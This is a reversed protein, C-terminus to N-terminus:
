EELEEHEEPEAPEEPIQVSFFYINIRSWEHINHKTNKQYSVHAWAVVRVSLLEYELNVLLQEDRGQLILGRLRRYLEDLTCTLPELHIDYSRPSHISFRRDTHHLCYAHQDVILMFIGNRAEMSGELDIQLRSFQNNYGWVVNRGTLVRRCDLQVLHGMRQMQILFSIYSPNPVESVLYLLQSYMCIEYSTEDCCVDQDQANM